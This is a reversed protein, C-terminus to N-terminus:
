LSILLIGLVTLFLASLKAPLTKWGFEEHIAKPFLLSIILSFVLVFIPQTGSVATVLSIPGFSLATMFSIIGMYGFLGRIGFQLLLKKNTLAFIIEKRVDKNKLLFLYLPISSYFAICNVTLSPLDQMAYKSISNGISSFIASLLAFMYASRVESKHSEGGVSSLISGLVIVLIGVWKILNLSEHFFFMGILSSYIPQSFFIASVRTAEGKQMAKWFFIWMFFWFFGAIASYIAGNGFKFTDRQLYTTIIIFVLYVCNLIVAFSYVSKIKKTNLFKDLIVSLGFFVNALLSLLIWSM